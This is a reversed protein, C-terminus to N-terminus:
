REEKGGRREESRTISDSNDPGELIEFDMFENIDTDLDLEGQEVLQMVAIWTFLKLISGIRFLSADPDVAEKTELSTLGYGKSFIVEGKHVVTVVANPIHEKEVQKEMWNDIFGGVNSLDREKADVNLVGIFSILMLFLLTLLLSKLYRM